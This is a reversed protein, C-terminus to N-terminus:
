PKLKYYKQVGKPGSEAKTPPTLEPLSRLVGGIERSITANASRIEIGLHQCIAGMTFWIEGNKMMGEPRQNKWMDLVERVKEELPNAIAYKEANVSANTIEWFRDRGDLYRAWAEAWLQDREAELGAFDLLRNVEIIAYRRYGSPDHQLFEYRNGCGYLTFRRPYVEVSSGYPPRFADENRTIMAKLNSSERKGFSDLEDFGVCLGSHMLMHLDKDNQEGYLTLANGRFLINPMSTKGTGQPGVVILMWDIKTGPKDMRACAGILWKASVEKLFESDPVGWTRSLWSDLRKVGDWTIGRIHDLFPSRANRRSLADICTMVLRSNVKDFGLNHQFYNAIDMETLGPEAQKDGIMVRATDLNRWLKPFAPHEELLRMINSSHQHVRIEGQKGEQFALGYKTVLSKPSQVLEDVAVEKLGGFREQADSGWEVLLDDIKGDPQVIRVTFGENQLARAYTGYARCIDYRFVDGDPVICIKSKGARRLFDLIWPHVGGSGDPNRWLQCGGIGFAPLRLNRVISAAKKEGEACIVEDSEPLEFVGPPFYPLYAPLGERMLSEGDPQSYRQGKYFQPLRFRTRYMLPHGKENTLPSGDPRFYPIVYGASADKPIKIGAWAKAQMDEPELGSKALDELAWKGNVEAAAKTFDNDPIPSVIRYKPLKAVQM